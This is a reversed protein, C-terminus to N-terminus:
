EPMKELAEVLQSFSPRRNPDNDWCSTMMRTLPAPTKPPIPPRLGQQLVAIGVQMPQMGFYPLKRAVMEWLLIGFSFVDAKESYPKNALVEVAMYQFTGCQGTMQVAAAGKSIRTLGFDGVKCNLDRDLMLNSSKLDRHLLKSDHLYKMGRCTDLSFKRRMAWTVRSQSQHLLDFLTGRAMFETLIMLNPPKTCAGVFRLINPHRLTCLVAVESQFEGVSGANSLAHAHIKKVAVTENRFKAKYVVGFGGSGIQPGYQVEYPGIEYDPNINPTKKGQAAAALAEKSGGSYDEEPQQPVIAVALMDSKGKKKATPANFGKKRSNASSSSGPRDFQINREDREKKGYSGAKMLKREVSGAKNSRVNGNSQQGAKMSKKNTKKKKHDKKAVQSEVSDDEDYQEEESSSEDSESESKVSSVRRMSRKGKTKMGNKASSKGGNMRGREMEGEVGDDGFSNEDDSVWEEYDVDRPIKQKRVSNVGGETTYRKKEEYEGVIQIPQQPRRRPSSGARGMRTLHLRPPSLETSNHGKRMSVSLKKMGNIHSSAVGRNVSHVSHQHRKSFEYMGRERVANGGEYRNSSETSYQQQSVIRRGDGGFGNGSERRTIIAPYREAVTMVGNGPVVVGAVGYRGVDNPESQLHPQRLRNNLDDEAIAGDTVGLSTGRIVRNKKKAIGPSLPKSSGVFPGGDYSSSKSQRGNSNMGRMEDMATTNNNIDIDVGKRAPRKKKKRFAKLKAILEMEDSPIILQEPMDLECAPHCKQVIEEDMAVVKLCNRVAAHINFLDIKVEERINEECYLWCLLIYTKCVETVLPPVAPWKANIVVDSADYDNDHSSSTSALLLRIIQISSQSIQLVARFAEIRKATGSLESTTANGVQVMWHTTLSSAFVVHTDCRKRLMSAYLSIEGHIFAHPSSKQQCKESSWSSQIWNLFGENTVTHTTFKAPGESILRHLLTVVKFAVLPNKSIPLRFLVKFIESPTDSNNDDAPNAVIATLSELLNDTLSETSSPPVPPQASTIARVSQELLM